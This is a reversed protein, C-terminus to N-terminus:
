HLRPPHPQTWWISTNYLFPQVSRASNKRVHKGRIGKTSQRQQSPSLFPTRCTFCSLRALALTFM